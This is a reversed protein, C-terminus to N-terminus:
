STWLPVFTRGQVTGVKVWEGGTRVYMTGPKVELAGLRNSYLREVAREMEVAVARQWFLEAGEQLAMHMACAGVDADEMYMEIQKM